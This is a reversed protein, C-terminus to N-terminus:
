LRLKFLELSQCDRISESLANWEHAAQYVFRQKGWNTKIKPLHINNSSRTFYSHINNNMEFDAPFVSENKLCKFMAILRHSKRRESLPQLDLLTLAETASSYKPKDLIIKAARNMLIQLDKMLTDNNKDGWVNDAYDFLLPAILSVYLTRTAHVPLLTKIRRILGIRQNIKKSIEDIHDAWKM